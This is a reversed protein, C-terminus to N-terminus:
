GKITAVKRSLVVLETFVPKVTSFISDYLAVYRQYLEHNRARPVFTDQISQIKNAMSQMDEPFTGAAKGGIIAAGLTTFDTRRSRMYPLGIVDAKIQNWCSSAAGGGLVRVQNLKINSYTDQVRKLSCAHDYAIAELISRYFHDSSHTLDFGIWMGRVEPDFPTARGNLHPIFLLGNSGPEIQSARDDLEELLEAGPGRCFNERFWRQVMGGGTIYTMAIWLGKVASPSCELTQFTTDPSYSDVCVTIAPYTAANDVVSGIENSGSGLQDCPKDYAGAIVPLGPQLGCEEGAKRSLSGVRETPDVIRPLKEIDIGLADCISDSWRFNRADTLGSLPASSSEWIAEDFRLGALMGQVYQTVMMFKKTKDYIEPTTNKIWFIKNAGMPAGTGSQSRILEKHKAMQPEFLEQDRCDLPNTYEMTQRWSEDVGIIGGGMGTFSLAAIDRSEIASSRLVSKITQITAKYFDDGQYVIAGPGLTYLKTDLASTALCNFQGDYLATKVSQSGLDTAIIHNAAM